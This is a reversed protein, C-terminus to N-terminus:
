FHSSEFFSDIPDLRMYQLSMGDLNPTYEPDLVPPVYEARQADSFVDGNCHCGEVEQITFM